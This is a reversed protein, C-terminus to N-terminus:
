GKGRAVNDDQPVQKIPFVRELLEQRFSRGVPLMQGGAKVMNGEIVEMKQVAVVYSKHIRVFKDASLLALMAQLTQYTILDGHSTSIRVYDKLSELYFIDAPAVRVLKKDVKLWIDQETEAPTLKPPPTLADSSPRQPRLLLGTVKSVAKVFRQFPVPKVLYDVAELEFSEVAYNRYATVLIVAPRYTLTKIFDLGNFLPMEIDLFILDPQNRQVFSLAVVPDTFTGALSLDAFRELYTQLVEIALPEDDIAICTIM